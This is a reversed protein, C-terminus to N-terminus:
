TPSEIQTLNLCNWSEIHFMFLNKTVSVVLMQLQNRFRKQSKEEYKRGLQKGVKGAMDMEEHGYYYKGEM